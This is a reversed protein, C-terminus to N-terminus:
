SSVKGRGGELLQTTVLGKVGRHVQQLYVMLSDRNREWEKNLYYRLDNFINHYSFMFHHTYKSPYKCCSLELTIEMDNTFIYNFDQMGGHLAYWDAGNTIGDKFFWRCHIIVSM